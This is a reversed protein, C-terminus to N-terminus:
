GMWGGTANPRMEATCMVAILQTPVALYRTVYRHAIVHARPKRCDLTLAEEGRKTLEADVCGFVDLPQARRMDFREYGVQAGHLLSLKLARHPSQVTLAREVRRRAHLHGDHRFPRRRWLFSAGFTGLPSRESLQLCWTAFGRGNHCLCHIEAAFLHRKHCHHTGGQPETQKQEQHHSQNRVRAIAHNTPLEPRALVAVTGALSAIGRNVFLRADDVPAVTDITACVTGTLGGVVHLSVFHERRPSTVACAVVSARAALLVWTMVDLTACM